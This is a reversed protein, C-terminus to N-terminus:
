GLFRQSLRFLVGPCDGAHLVIPLDNKWKLAFSRKLHLPPLARGGPAGDDGPRLPKVGAYQGLTRYVVEAAARWSLRM